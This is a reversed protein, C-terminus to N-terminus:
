RYTRSAFDYLKTIHRIDSGLDFAQPRVIGTLQEAFHLNRAVNIDM